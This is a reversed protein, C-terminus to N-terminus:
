RIYRNNSIWSGGGCETSGNEPGQPNQYRPMTNEMGIMFGNGFMGQWTWQEM